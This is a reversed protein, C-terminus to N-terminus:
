ANVSVCPRLHSDRFDRDKSIVTRNQSDAHDCIEADSTRNGSTLSSSHIADHGAAALLDSLRRPLQADVLFKM